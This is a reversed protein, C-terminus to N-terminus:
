RILTVTGTYKEIRNNVTNRLRLYYVYSGLPQQREKFTGDWGDTSNTTEYILEGWRNFIQM